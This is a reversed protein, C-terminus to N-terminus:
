AWDELTNAFDAAAGCLDPYALLNNEGRFFIWGYPFRRPGTVRGADVDDLLPKIWEYAEKVDVDSAAYRELLARLILAKQQLKLSKDMMTGQDSASHVPGSVNADDMLEPEARDGTASWRADESIIM